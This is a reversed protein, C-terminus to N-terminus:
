VIGITNDRSLQTRSGPLSIIKSKILRMQQLACIIYVTCYHHIRPIYASTNLKFSVLLTDRLIGILASIGM